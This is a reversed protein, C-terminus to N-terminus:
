LTPPNASVLKLQDVGASLADAVLLWRKGFCEPQQLVCRIEKSRSHLKRVPSRTSRADRGDLVGEKDPELKIMDEGAGPSTIPMVLM